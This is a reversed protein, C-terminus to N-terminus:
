GTQFLRLIVVLAILGAIFGALGRRRPDTGRAVYSATPLISLAVVAYVMHLTEAPRAGGILIGLGGAITVGLALVLANEVTRAPGGPPVNRLARWGSELTAAM